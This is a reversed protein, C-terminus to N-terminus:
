RSPPSCARQEGLNGIVAIAARQREGDDISRLGGGGFVRYQTGDGREDMGLLGRLRRHARVDRAPSERKNAYAAPRRAAQRDVVKVLM